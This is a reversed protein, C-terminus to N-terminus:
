ESVSGGIVFRSVIRSMIEDTGQAIQNGRCDRWIRGIRTQDTYGIGAFIQLADSAVETAATPVFRKMLACLLHMDDGATDSDVACAADWVFHEMARLRVEMDAIKDQIQPISGLRRGKVFHTVAYRCADDMAACALGLSSACVLIRGLEYQRKLMGDLRGDTRIRWQEDLRAHSFEITASALMEQGMTQLPYTSVGPTSLPVLWLSLGGDKGGFVPDHALVLTQPAFQGNSVFTKCGDLFVGDGDVTVATRVASADSGANTESFAQSFLVRCSSQVYADAIEEQSRRGMCSLLAASLMDSLFPLTAGARRTIHAVFRVRDQFSCDGGALRSPAFLAGLESALIDDYVDQPLGRSQVWRSVREESFHGDCFEEVARFLGDNENFLYKDM